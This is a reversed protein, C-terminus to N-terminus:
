YLMNVVLLMRIFLISKVRTSRGTELVDIILTLDVLLYYVRIKCSINAALVM